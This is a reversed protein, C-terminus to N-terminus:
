IPCYQRNNLLRQKHRNTIHCLIKHPFDGSMMTMHTSGILSETTIPLFGLIQVTSMSNVGITFKTSVTIGLIAANTGGCYALASERQRPPIQIISVTWMTTIGFYKNLNPPNQSIGVGDGKVEEYQPILRLIPVTFTIYSYHWSNPRLASFQPTQGKALRWSGEGIGFIAANTGECSTL